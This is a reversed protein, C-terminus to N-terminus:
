GEVVDTAGLEDFFKRAAGQPGEVSVNAVGTGEDVVVEATVNHKKALDEVRPTDGTEIDANWRMRAIM